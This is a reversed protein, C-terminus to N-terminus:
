TILNRINTSWASLNATRQLNDAPFSGFNTLNTLNTLTTLSGTIQARMQNASKDVYSPNAIATLISRLMPIIESMQIDSPITPQTM